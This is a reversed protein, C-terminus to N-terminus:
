PPAYREKARQIADAMHFSRSMWAPDHRIFVVFVFATMKSPGVEEGLILVGTSDVSMALVIYSVSLDGFGDIRNTACSKPQHAFVPVM